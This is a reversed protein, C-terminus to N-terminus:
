GVKWDPPFSRPVTWDRWDFLANPTCTVMSVSLGSGDGAYPLYCLLGIVRRSGDVLDIVVARGTNLGGTLHPTRTEGTAMVFTTPLAAVAAKTVKARDIFALANEVVIRCELGDTGAACPTETGIWTADVLHVDPGIWGVVAPPTTCAALLLILLVLFRM